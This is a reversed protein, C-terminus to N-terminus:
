PLAGYLSLDVYDSFRRCNGYHKDRGEHYLLIQRQVMPCPGFGHASGKNPLLRIDAQRLAGARSRKTSLTAPSSLFEAVCARPTPSAFPGTRVIALASAIPGSRLDCQGPWSRRTRGRIRKREDARPMAPHGRCRRKDEVAVARRQVARRGHGVVLPCMVAVVDEAKTGTAPGLRAKREHATSRAAAATACSSWEAAAPASATTRPPLLSKSQWPAYCAAARSDGASHPNGM